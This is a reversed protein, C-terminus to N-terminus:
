LVKVLNKSNTNLNSLPYPCKVDRYCKITPTHRIRGVGIHEYDQSIGLKETSKKIVEDRRENSICFM